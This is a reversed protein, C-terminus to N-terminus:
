RVGAALRVRDIVDELSLDDTDIVLADPAPRLPSVHRQRDM